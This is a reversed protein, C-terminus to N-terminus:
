AARLIMVIFGICGSAVCTATRSPRMRPTPESSSDAAQPACVSSSRKVSLTSIGPRISPWQWRFSPLMHSM